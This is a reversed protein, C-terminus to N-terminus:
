RPLYKTTNCRKNLEEGLARILHSYKSTLNVDKKNEQYAFRILLHKRWQKLEEVGMTSIDLTAKM